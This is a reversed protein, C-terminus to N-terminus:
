PSCIEVHPSPSPTPFWTEWTPPFDEIMEERRQRLELVRAFTKRIEPPAYQERFALRLSAKQAATPEKLAALESLSDPAALAIADEPELLGFAFEARLGPM